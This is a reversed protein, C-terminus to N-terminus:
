ANDKEKLEGCVECYTGTHDHVMGLKEAFKITRERAEQEVGTELENVNHQLYNLTKYYDCNYLGSLKYVAFFLKVKLIFRLFKRGFPVYSLDYNIEKVIRMTFKLRKIM